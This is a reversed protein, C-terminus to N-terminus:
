QNKIIKFTQLIASNDIVKLFYIANAFEEMQIPTQNGNIKQQILLKGSLDYLQLSLKDFNQNDIKLTVASSTPNPFASCVLSINKIINTGTIYFEFPQQVGQNMSGNANSVATYVGQGITYSVTGGSGSSNGGTTNTSEQAKLETLFFSLLFM